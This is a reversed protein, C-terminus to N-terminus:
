ENLYKDIGNKCWTAKNKITEFQIKRNSDLSNKQSVKHWIHYIIGRFKLRKGYLGSFVMRRIMETDDPGWGTIDENYGNIAIFDAKWYSLNCGRTKKSLILERQYRKALIPIYLNRGRRLLGRSFFSFNIKKYRYVEKVINAKLSVRSGFIYTNKEIASIHDKIFHKHLICDGDTQIIYNGNSSAVAKNFIVTKRYGEDEHWLYRLKTPYDKQFHEVLHRTAETSGDDAIIVEDPFKSQKTISLLILELAEPWNYTPIILTSTIQM